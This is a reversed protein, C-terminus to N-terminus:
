CSVHTWSDSLRIGIIWAENDSTSHEKCKEVSKLANILNSLNKVEGANFYPAVKYSQRGFCFFDIRRWQKTTVLNSSSLHTRSNESNHGIAWREYHMPFDVFANMKVAWFFSLMLVGTSITRSLSPVITSSSPYKLLSSSFVHKMTRLSLSFQVWAWLFTLIEPGSDSKNRKTITVQEYQYWYWRTISERFQHHQPLISTSHQLHIGSEDCYTEHYRIFKRAIESVGITRSCRWLIEYISKEVDIKLWELTQSCRGSKSKIDVDILLRSISVMDVFRTWVHILCM